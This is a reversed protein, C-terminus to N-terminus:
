GLPQCLPVLSSSFQCGRIIALSSCFALRPRYDMKNAELMRPPPQPIRRADIEHVKGVQALAM